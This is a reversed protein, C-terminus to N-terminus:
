ARLCAKKCDLPMGCHTLGEPYLKHPQLTPEPKDEIWTITTPESQVTAKQSKKACATMMILGAAFTLIKRM